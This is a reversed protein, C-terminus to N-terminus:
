CWTLKSDCLKRDTFESRRGKLFQQAHINVLKIKGFLDQKKRWTNKDRGARWILQKNSIISQSSTDLRRPLMVTNHVKNM